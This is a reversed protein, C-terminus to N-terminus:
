LNFSLTVKTGKDNYVLKDTYRKMIFVGRGSINEINEPATPDPINVPNFGAGEDEVAVDLVNDKITFDIRVKKFNSLKNGHSIANNVAEVVSVLIKGYLDPSISQRESVEDIVKEVLNISDLTSPLVLSKNFM